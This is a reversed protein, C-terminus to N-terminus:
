RIILKKIGSAAFPKDSDAFVSETLSNDAAVAITSTHFRRAIDFLTENGTPYYVTVVSSEKEFVEDTTNSSSVYGVRRPVVLFTQANLQASLKVTNADLSPLADTADLIVEVRATEPIQCGYKVNMTFPVDYKVSTYAPEGAENVECAIGSFRMEGKIQVTDGNIATSEAKPLASMYIFNRINETGAEGRALEGTVAETACVGGLSETYNFDSYENDVGREKLYCDAVLSLHTNGVARLQTETIVSATLAAGDETPDVSVKLSTVNICPRVTLGEELGDCAVVESIPICCERLEPVEDIRKYLARVCLEGHLEASGEGVSVGTVRPQCTSLLVEVEDAITGDLVALQEAYEREVPASYLSYAVDAGTLLVEPEGVTFADGEVGVSDRETIHVDSILSARASIRRPGTLRLNYNAVRTRIDSGVCRDQRCRVAIEYDTTFSCSTIENESDLYVIDYAVIGCFEASDGDVFGSSPVARAKIHLIRKVDTNYDPLSYDGVSECLLSSVGRECLYERNTEM